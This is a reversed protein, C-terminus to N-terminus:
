PLTLTQALVQAPDTALLDFAGDGDCFAFRFGVVRGYVLHPLM